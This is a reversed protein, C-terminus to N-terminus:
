SSTRSKGPKKKKGASPDPATPLDSPNGYKWDEPNAPPKFENTSFVRFAGDGPGAVSLILAIHFRPGQFYPVRIRHIGGALEISGEVRSPPHLGGNDIIKRDDIYLMSGDDSVLAFRYVGPKQIYFRGTYNIAFWEFRDTIGPFGTTFDRAPINLSDTYVNGLPKLKEFKPEIKVNKPINFVEGRLGSPKVVTTGFVAVQGEDQALCIGATILLILVM